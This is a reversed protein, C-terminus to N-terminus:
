DLNKKNSAFNAHISQTAKRQLHNTQVPSEFGNVVRKIGNKLLLSNFNIILGIRCKSLKLYTLTQALHIDHLASVSKIELIIREEVLLDIRFGCELFTNDFYLPVGVEKRVKLGLKKLKYFLCELYVRELLGPGLSKHIQMAEGIILSTLQDDTM